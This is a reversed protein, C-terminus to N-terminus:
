SEREKERQQRKPFLISLKTFKLEKGKVQCYYVNTCTLIIKIKKVRPFKDIILCFCRQMHVTFQTYFM